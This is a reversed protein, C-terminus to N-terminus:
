PLVARGCDVCIRGGGMRPHTRHPGNCHVVVAGGEVVLNHPHHAGCRVCTDHSERTFRHGVPCLTPPSM